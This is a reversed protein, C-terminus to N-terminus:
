MRVILIEKILFIYYINCFCNRQYQRTKYICLIIIIVILCIDIANSVYKNPMNLSALLNLYDLFGVIDAGNLTIILTVYIEIRPEISYTYIRIYM